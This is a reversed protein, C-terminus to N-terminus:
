EKKGSKFIELMRKAKKDFDATLGYVKGSVIVNMQGSKGPSVDARLHYYPFYVRLLMVFFVVTVAVWLVAVGPDKRLQLGTAKMPESLEFTFGKWTLPKELTVEEFWEPQFGQERPNDGLDPWEIREAPVLTGIRIRPSLPTSEEDGRKEVLTGMVIESVVGIESLGPLQFSQNQDSVEIELQEGSPSTVTLKAAQVFFLQYLYVGRYIIPFNVEIKRRLTEKGDELISLDSVFDDIHYWGEHPIYQTWYDNCKVDFSAALDFHEEPNAWKWGYKAHLSGLWKFVKTDPDYIQITKTQGPFLMATSDWSYWNSVLFGVLALFLAWHFVISTIVHRINFGFDLKFQYGESDKQCPQPNFRHEVLQKEAQENSVMMKADFSEEFVENARRMFKPSFAQIKLNRFKFYGTLRVWTCFIINMFLLYSLTLYFWSQFMWFFGLKYFLPKLRGAQRLQEVFWDRYKDSVNLIYQNRLWGGYAKQIDGSRPSSGMKEIAEEDSIMGPAPADLLRAIQADSLNDPAPIELYKEAAENPDVVEPIPFGFVAFVADSRTTQQPLIGGIITLVALAILIIFSTEMRILFNWVEKRLNVLIAVFGVILLPIAWSPM